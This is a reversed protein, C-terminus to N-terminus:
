AHFLSANTPSIAATLLVLLYQKMFRMMLPNNVVIMDISRIIIDNRIGNRNNNNNNRRLQQMRGICFRVPFGGQQYNLVPMKQQRQPQLLMLSTTWIKKRSTAIHLLCSNSPM